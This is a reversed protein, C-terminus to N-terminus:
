SHTHWLDDRHWCQSNTRCAAHRLEAYLYLTSHRWYRERAALVDGAVGAGEAQDELGARVAARAQPSDIRTLAWVANRRAEAPAASKVASALVPVAPGGARTLERIARQRVAASPVDGQNGEPPAVSAASCHRLKGGPASALELSRFLM